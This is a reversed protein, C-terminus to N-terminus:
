GAPWCSPCVGSLFRERIDEDFQSLVESVRAGQHMKFVKEGDLEIEEIDGCMPCPRSSVVYLGESKKSVNGFDM